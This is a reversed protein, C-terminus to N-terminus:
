LFFMAMLKFLAGFYIINVLEFTLKCTFGICRRAAASECLEPERRYYYSLQIGPLNQLHLGRRMCRAVAVYSFREAEGQM